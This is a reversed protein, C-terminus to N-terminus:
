LKNSFSRFRLLNQIKALVKLLERHCWNKKSLPCFLCKCDLRSQRWLNGPTWMGQRNNPIRTLFWLFSYSELFELFRDFKQFKCLKLCKLFRHVLLNWSIRFGMSRCLDKTRRHTKVLNIRKGFFELPHQM